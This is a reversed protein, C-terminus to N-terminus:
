YSFPAGVSDLPILVLKKEFPNPSELDFRTSASFFTYLVSSPISPFKSCSNILKCLSIPSGSSQPILISRSSYSAVGGIIDDSLRLLLAASWYFYILIALYNPPSDILSNYDGPTVPVPRLSDSLWVLTCKHLFQSFLYFFRISLRFLM